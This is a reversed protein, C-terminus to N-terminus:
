SDMNDSTESRFKRRNIHQSYDDDLSNRLGRMMSAYPLRLQDVSLFVGPKRKSFWIWNRQNGFIYMGMQQLFFTNVYGDSTSVLCLKFGNEIQPTGQTYVHM